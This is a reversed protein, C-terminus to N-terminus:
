LPMPRWRKRSTAMGSGQQGEARAAPLTVEVPTAAEALSFILCFLYLGSACRTPPLNMGVTMSRKPAKPSASTPKILVRLRVPALGLPVGENIIVIDERSGRTGRVDSRLQAERGDNRVRVHDVLEHRM